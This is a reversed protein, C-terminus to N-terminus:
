KVGGSKERAPKAGTRRLERILESQQSIATALITRDEFAKKEYAIRDAQATSTTAVLQERLGKALLDLQEASPSANAYYISVGGTIVAIIISSIAVWMSRQAHREAQASNENALAQTSLTTDTLTQILEASRIITPRMEESQAQQKRLLINTELIPNPPIKVPEFDLIQPEFPSSAFKETAGSARLAAISEGLNDSAKVTRCAAELASLGLADRRLQEVASDLKFKSAHESITNGWSNKKLQAMVSNEQVAKRMADAAANSLVSNRATGIIREMQARQSETHALIAPGLSDCGTEAYKQSLEDQNEDPKPNREIRLRRAVFQNCFNDLEVKSLSAIEDQSLSRGGAVADVEPDGTLKRAISLILDRALAEGGVNERAMRDFKALEGGSPGCRFVGLSESFVDFDAIHILKSIDM